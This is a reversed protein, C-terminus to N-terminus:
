EIGVIVKVNEPIKFIEKEELTYRTENYEVWVYRNNPQIYMLDGVFWVKVFLGITFLLSNM